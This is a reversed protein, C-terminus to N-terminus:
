ARYKDYRSFNLTQTPTVTSGTSDRPSMLIQGSAQARASVSYFPDKDGISGPGSGGTRNRVEELGNIAGLFSLNFQYGDIIEQQYDGISLEVLYGTIVIGSFTIRLNTAAASINHQKYFKLFPPEGVADIPGNCDALAYVGSIPWVSLRQSFTNIYKDSGIAYMLQFNPKVSGSIKTLWLKDDDLKDITLRVPKDDQLAALQTRPFLAGTM